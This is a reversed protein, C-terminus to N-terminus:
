NGRRDINSLGNNKDLFIQSIIDHSSKWRKLGDDTERVAASAWGGAALPRTDPALDQHVHWVVLNRVGWNGAVCIAETDVLYPM